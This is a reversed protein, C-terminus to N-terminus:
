EQQIIKTDKPLTNTPVSDHINGSVSIRVCDSKFPSVWHKMWAPFIFMDGAKPLESMYTITDRGGGEGYLFQIGGPGCSRGLYARNEDRLKDPIDMYLVFSLKGDHDHPPNFEHQRQYNIWLASLIYVPKKDYRKNQYKQFCNDYIGLYKALEKLIIDKSAAPFGIEDKLQGALKHTYNMKAKKAEAWILDRFKDQTAIKIVCPGWNYTNVQVKEQEKEEPM